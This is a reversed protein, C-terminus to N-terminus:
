GPFNRGDTDLGTLWYIDEIKFLLLGDLELEQMSARTRRQREAFEDHSFHINPKPM